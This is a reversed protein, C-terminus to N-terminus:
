VPRSLPSETEASGMREVVRMHMGTKNSLTIQPNLEITQGPMLEFRLRQAITAVVLHAEMLAFSNGICIRPGGGFPMYVYRSLAKEREPTFRDPDFQEPNDWYRPLRHQAYPAIFITSGEPIVYGGVVTDAIAFRGNLLWAPPYLRMAEKITQLTFSLTPLDELTPARGGLVTDLEHHLRAEVDRNQSLLYWTWTLANSTTEHGAAFLTVLEDRVQQDPMPTGDDYKALLLMSLLDGTDEIEGSARREAILRDIVNYLVTRAVKRQRNRMTPIWEPWLILGQYDDNSATQMVAIADGIVQAQEAMTEMDANYLTKSVIFMTLSMMAEAIDHVAGSQWDAMLRRTYDVMVDAYANIRRVHFAPQMLKRQIKHFPIDNNPVLGKGLFRGIIKADRDSKPFEDYHTVLVDRILEPGSVLVFRKGFMKFQVIEGYEDAMRLLFEPANDIMDSTLGAIPAGKATPIAKTNM